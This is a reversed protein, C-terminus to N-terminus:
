STAVILYIDLRWATQICDCGTELCLYTLLTHM